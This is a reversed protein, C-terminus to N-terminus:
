ARANWLEIRSRFSTKSCFPAVHEFYFFRALYFNYFFSRLNLNKKEEFVFFYKRHVSTWERFDHINREIARLFEHGVRQQRYLDFLDMETEKTVEFTAELLFLLDRTEHFFLLFLQFIWEECCERFHKWRSVDVTTSSKSTTMKGWLLPRVYFMSLLLARSDEYVSGLFFILINEEETDYAGKNCVAEANLYEKWFLDFIVDLIEQVHCCYLCADSRLAALRRRVDLLYSRLGADCLPLVRRIEEDMERALRSRRHRYDWRHITEWTTDSEGMMALSLQPAYDEVDEDQLRFWTWDPDPLSTPTVFIESLSFPMEIREKGVWELISELLGKWGELVFMVPRYQIVYKGGGSESNSSSSLLTM